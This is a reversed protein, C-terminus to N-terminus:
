NFLRIATIVFLLVMLGSLIYNSNKSFSKTKHEWKNFYIIYLYMAFFTGSGAALIFLIEDIIRYSMIGHAHFVTNLGSYYPIALLNILALFVGKSFSNRKKTEALVLPRNEQKRGKIFFVIALIFFIVLALQLLVEIVHQNRSIYKAIRVAIYTQLMVAVAIGLAFIIGNAKGKEVSTKAANLNLLGPPLSALFAAGFTFFFLIPLQQM